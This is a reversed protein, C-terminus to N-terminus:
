KKKKKERRREEKEREKREKEKERVFQEKDWDQPHNSHQESVKQFVNPDLPNM